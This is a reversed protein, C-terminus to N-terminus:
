HARSKSIARWVMVFVLLQLARAMYQWLSIQDGMEVSSWGHMVFYICATGTGLKLARLVVTNKGFLTENITGITGVAATAMLAGEVAHVIQNSAMHYNKATGTLVFFGVSSCVNAAWYYHIVPKTHTATDKRAAVFPGIGFLEDISTLTATISAKTGGHSAPSSATSPRISMSATTQRSNPYTLVTQLCDVWSADRTTAVTATFHSEPSIRPISARSITTVHHYSPLGPAIVETGSQSNLSESRM